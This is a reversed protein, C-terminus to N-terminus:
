EVAAGAAPAGNKYREFWAPIAAAKAASQSPRAALGGHSAGRGTLCETEACASSGYSGDGRVQDPTWNEVREAAM